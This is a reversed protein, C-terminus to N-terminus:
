KQVRKELKYPSYHVGKLEPSKGDTSNFIVDGYRVAVVTGRRGNHLPGLEDRFADAKVRVINTVTIQGPQLPIWIYDDENEEEKITHGRAIQPFVTLVEETMNDSLKPIEEWAELLKMIAKGSGVKVKAAELQELIWERNIEPM